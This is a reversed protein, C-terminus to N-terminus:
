PKRPSKPLKELLTRAAGHHAAEQEVIRELLPRAKEWHCAKLYANAM